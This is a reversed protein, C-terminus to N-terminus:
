GTSNKTLDGGTNHTVIQLNPAYRSVERLLGPLLLQEILDTTYIHIVDNVNLFGETEIERYFQEINGVLLSAPQALKHAFPTPTLGRAARVFLLDDFENRLKNLKHILAPQSLAMRNAAKSLNCEEYLVKFLYLLNLDKGAINM